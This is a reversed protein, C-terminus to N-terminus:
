TARSHVVYFDDIQYCKYLYVEDQYEGGEVADWIAEIQEMEDLMTFQYITM